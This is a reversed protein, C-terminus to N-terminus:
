LTLGIVGIVALLGGLLSRPSPRDGELAWTFPIVVLPTTAVIPLIVAAPTTKLAWQFCTVGVTPGAMANFLVLPWINGSPPRLTTADGKAGKSWRALLLLWASRLAVILLGGLIRQYAATGGDMDFGAAAGLEFGKRSLVAGVGQGLGAVLGCAIGIWRERRPVQVGETPALALGVGGLILASWLMESGSLRTGLWGWEMLAAFPAALCNVMLASLRAGLRPFSHYLALDGVGFGVVGSLFFWGFAGGNVGQGLGHAWLGLAVTAVLVRWLNARDSGLLRTTRGAATVSGAFLLTALLAPLM